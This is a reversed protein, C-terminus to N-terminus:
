ITAKEVDDIWAVCGDSNRVVSARSSAPSDCWYVVVASMLPLRPEDTRRGAVTEDEAVVAVPMITLPVTVDAVSPPWNIAVRVSVSVAARVTSCVDTSRGMVAM